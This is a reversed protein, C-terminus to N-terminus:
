ETLMEGFLARQEFLFRYKQEVRRNNALFLPLFVGNAYCFSTLLRSDIETLDKDSRTM